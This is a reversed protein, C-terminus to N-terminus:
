RNLDICAIEDFSRLFLRGAALAFPGWADHGDFVVTESIKRYGATTAEIMTLTGYDDFIFFKGDALMYPGDGFKGKGRSDWTVNGNLDLCVMLKDIQRIGFIHNEFFIPTQQTSGFVSPKLKFLTKAEYADGNKVIQMMRAGTNYGGCFFIRNEPLVLPSPCTAIGIKWETTSWLVTGTVADVGVVGGKGCYVFTPKGDLRMPMPSSHTQPTWLFTNPINWIEAGTECDIAAMLIDKGGIGLILVDRGSPEKVVLPCQGAYWEPIKARYKMAVDLLWKFDGTMSDVCMVHLKPGITLCYKETVAPITRSVGHSPTVAVPYYRQWIEEGDDLSLCKLIDRKQERDYDILYVAGNRIAASAYGDGAPKRWLFKPKSEPFADLLPMEEPSVADLNPGRFCPWVATVASHKGKGAAFHTEIPVYRSMDTEQEAEPLRLDPIEPSLTALIAIGIGGIVIVGGALLLTVTVAIKIFHRINM